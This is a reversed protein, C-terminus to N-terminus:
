GLNLNLTLYKKCIEAVIRIIGATPPYIVLINYSGVNSIKYVKYDTKKTNISSSDVKHKELPENNNSELWYKLTWDQRPGLFFTWFFSSPNGFIEFGRPYSHFKSKHANQSKFIQYM